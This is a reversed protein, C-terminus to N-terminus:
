QQWRDRVPVILAGVRYRKGERAEEQLQETKQDRADCYWCRIPNSAKYRAPIGLMKDGEAMPDIVDEIPMGCRAHVHRELDALVLMKEREDADWEVEPVTMTAV